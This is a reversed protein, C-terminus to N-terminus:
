TNTQSPALKIRRKEIYKKVEHFKLTFTYKKAPHVFLYSLNDKGIWSLKFIKDEVVFHYNAGVILLPRDVKPKSKKEKISSERTVRGNGAKKVKDRDKVLTDVIQKRTKDDMDQTYVDVVRTLHKKLDDDSMNSKKSSLIVETLKKIMVFLDKPSKIFLIRFIDKSNFLINLVNVSEDQPKPKKKKEGFGMHQTVMDLTREIKGMMGGYLKKRKKLGNAIHEMGKPVFDNETYSDRNNKSDRLMRNFVSDGDLAKTVAIYIDRFDEVLYKEYFTMLTLTVNLDKTYKNFVSSFAAVIVEANIPNDKDLESNLEEQISSFEIKMVNFIRNAINDQEIKFEIDINRIVSLDDADFWRISSSSDISNNYEEIFSHGFDEIFEDLHNKFVNKVGLMRKQEDLDDGHKIKETLLIEVLEKRKILGGCIKDTVIGLCTDVKNDSINEM